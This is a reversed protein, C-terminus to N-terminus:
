GCMVWGVIIWREVLREVNRPAYMACWASGLRASDLRTSDNCLSGRLDVPMCRRIAVGSSGSLSTDKRKLIYSGFPSNECEDCTAGDRTSIPLIGSTGREGIVGGDKVMSGVDGTSKM